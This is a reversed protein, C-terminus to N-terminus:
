MLDDIEVGSEEGSEETAFGAFADEAKQKGDLREDDKTKMVNNLGVGIGRNGGTDYAFFNVDAHGWCGSYFEDQDMIPNADPGVVGPAGKKEARGSNMFFFGKYEAGKEGDEFEKDGDRLPMRLSKVKAKTIKGKEIGKEVAQAIGQQYEALTAKNTKEIMLCVGYKMDGSPTADAEWVKVYSFKVNQLITM